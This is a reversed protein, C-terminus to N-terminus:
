EAENEQFDSIGAPPEGVTIYEVDLYVLGTGEPDVALIEGGIWIKQGEDLAGIAPFELTKVESRIMVGFGDPSVDALLIKKDGEPEHLEELNFFYVPWLVRLGSFKANIVTDNLNQMSALEKLLEDASPRLFYTATQLTSSKGTGNNGERSKLVIKKPKELPEVTDDTENRGSKQLFLGVGIFVILGLFLGILAIRDRHKGLYKALDTLGAM